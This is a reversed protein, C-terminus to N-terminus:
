RICGECNLFWRAKETFTEGGFKQVTAKRANRGTRDVFSGGTLPNDLFTVLQESLNVGTAASIM